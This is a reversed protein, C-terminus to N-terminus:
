DSMGWETVMRTATSTCQQFDNSAGTTVNDVGNVIEEAVRGGLTVCIMNLLYEKSYMGSNLAEEEPTFITVGGASGRPVISIKNVIDDNEMLAGLLAHGAEHYAVLRQRQESFTADKRELGIQIKDIANYIDDMSVVERKRRASLLAAENLVNALEAGSMGLCRKAVEDLSVSQELKVNKAHVGM